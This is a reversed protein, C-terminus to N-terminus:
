KAGKNRYRLRNERDRELASKLVNKNRFRQQALRNQNKRDYPSTKKRGANRRRRIESDVLYRLIEKARDSLCPIEERMRELEALTPSPQDSM